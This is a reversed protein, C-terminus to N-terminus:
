PKPPFIGQLAIIFRLPLYPQMNDHPLTPSTGFTGLALASMDTNPTPGYAPTDKKTRGNKPPKAWVAKTPSTLDGYDDLANVQHTHAPMQNTTLTVTAAGGTQAVTRQTLGTGTGQHVPVRDNLNPLAFTQNVVGGYTYGIVAFLGQAQTIPLLQGNCDAWDAPPFQGCFIRIEGIYPDM